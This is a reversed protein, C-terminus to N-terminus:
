CTIRVTGRDSSLAVTLVSELAPGASVHPYRGESPVRETQNGDPAQGFALYIDRKIRFVEPRPPAWRLSISGDTM